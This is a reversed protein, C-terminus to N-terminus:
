KGRGRGFRKGFFDGDNWTPRETEMAIKQGVLGAFRAFRAGTRYDFKQSVDDKPSHYVTEMWKMRAKLVDVGAESSKYGMELFLAPIGQKVFSYHDTRIFMGQDPFPDPSMELGSETAAQAATRGLSSHEAGHAIVDRLSPVFPIPEDFNINAVVKEIPVPSNNAFYDSGLLGQEEGTVAMFMVSRRPRSSLQSFARAIELMVACGGANDFAGNYIADGDVAPGIGLHDLHTSFVLYESKLEPDAGEMVAVVNASEVSTRRSKYRVTATKNTAFRPPEGKASATFIEALNHREGEFLAEAASRNLLPGPGSRADLGLVRGQSDLWTMSPLSQVMTQLLQWPFKKELEPTMIALIGAAGHDTAIQRKVYGNMYYARIPAPFKSPAEFFLVAAIKGKVDIGAYDDYNM